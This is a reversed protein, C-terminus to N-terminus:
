DLRRMAHPILASHELGRTGATSGGVRVQQRWGVDWVRNRGGQKRGAGRSLRGESGARDHGLRGGDGGEGGVKLKRKTEQPALAMIAEAVLWLSRPVDAVYMRRLRHPYHQDMAHALQPPDRSLPRPLAHVSLASHRVVGPAAGKGM